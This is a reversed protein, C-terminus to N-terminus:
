SKIVTTADVMIVMTEHHISLSCGDALSVVIIAETEDKTMDTVLCYDGEYRIVTGAAVENLKIRRPNVIKIEM